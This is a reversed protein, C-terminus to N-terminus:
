TTVQFEYRNVQDPTVDHVPGLEHYTKFVDKVVISIAKSDMTSVAFTAIGNEDTIGELFRAGDKYFVEISIDKVPQDAKNRIIKIEITTM